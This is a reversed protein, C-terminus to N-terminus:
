QSQWSRFYNISKTGLTVVSGSSNSPSLNQFSLGAPPDIGENNEASNVASPSPQQTPEPHCSCSRNGNKVLRKLLHPPMPFNKENGGDSSCDGLYGDETVSPPPQLNSPHLFSPEPTANSTSAVPQSNPMSSNSNAPPAQVLPAPANGLSVSSLSSDNSEQDGETEVGSDQAAGQVEM